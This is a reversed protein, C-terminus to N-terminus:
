IGTYRVVLKVPVFSMPIKSDQMYILMIEDAKSLYKRFPKHVKMGLGQIKGKNTVFTLMSLDIDYEAWDIDEPLPKNYLIAAQSDVNVVLEADRDGSIISPLVPASEPLIYQTEERANKKAKAALIDDDDDLDLAMSM